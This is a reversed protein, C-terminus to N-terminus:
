IPQPDNGNTAPALYEWEDDLPIWKFEDSSDFDLEVTPDEYKNFPLEYQEM